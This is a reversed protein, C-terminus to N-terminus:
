LRATAAAARGAAASPKTGPGPGAAVPKFGVPKV